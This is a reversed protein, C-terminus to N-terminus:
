VEETTLLSFLSPADSERLERLVVQSGHLVPLMARWDSVAPAADMTTTAALDAAENYPMKEM